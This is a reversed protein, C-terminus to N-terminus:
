FAAIADRLRRVLDPVLRLRQAEEEIVCEFGAKKL